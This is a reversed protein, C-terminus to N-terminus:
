EKQKQPPQEPVERKPEHFKDRDGNARQDTYGTM